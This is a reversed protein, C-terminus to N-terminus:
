KKGKDHAKDMASKEWKKMSMGAAKAMRRDEAVDKKSGEWVKGGKARSMEELRRRDEAPPPVYRDSAGSPPMTSKKPGFLKEEVREGATRGGLAYKTRPPPSVKDAGYRERAKERGWTEQNKAV